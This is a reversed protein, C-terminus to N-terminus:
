AVSLAEKLDKVEGEAFASLIHNCVREVSAYTCRMQPSIVLRNESLVWLDYSSGDAFDVVSAQFFPNAHFISLSGNPFKRLVAALRHNQAKDHFIPEAYEIAIPRASLDARANRGRDKFFGYKQGVLEIMGAGIKRMFLEASGKCRFTCSRSVYGQSRIAKDAVRTRFTFGASHLWRSGENLWGVVEEMSEETWTRETRTKRVGKRHDIRSRSAFDTILLDQVEKTTRLKDVLGVLMQSNLFPTAVWPSLSRVLPWMTQRFFEPSDLTLLVSVEKHPSHIHLMKGSATSDSQPQSVQLCTAVATRWIARVTTPRPAYSSEWSFESDDICVVMGRAACQNQRLAGDLRNLLEDYDKTPKYCMALAEIHTM